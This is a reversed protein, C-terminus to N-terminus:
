ATPGVAQRSFWNSTAEGQYSFFLENPFKMLGLSIMAKGTDVLKLQDLPCWHTRCHTCGAPNGSLELRGVLLRECIIEVWWPFLISWYWVM